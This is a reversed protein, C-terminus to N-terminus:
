KSEEKTKSTLKNRQNEALQISTACSSLTDLRIPENMYNSNTSTTSSNSSSLGNGNSACPSKILCNSNTYLSAAVDVMANRNWCNEYSASTAYTSANPNLSSTQTGNFPNNTSFVNSSNAYSSTSSYYPWSEGFSSTTQSPNFTNSNVKLNWNSTSDKTIDNNM